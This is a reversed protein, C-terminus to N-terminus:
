DSGRITNKGCGVSLSKRVESLLSTSDIGALGDPLATKSLTRTTRQELLFDGDPSSVVYGNAGPVFRLFLLYEKDAQLLEYSLDEARIVQGDLSILGGPRTIQISADIDIRSASNNKLVDKVLLEYETFIFTEDDTMHASKSRVSGLVVADAGCSLDSLFEAKTPFPMDGVTVTQPIGITVGVERTNGKSKSLQVVGSLKRGERDPYLEKYEKSYAREKETVQGKHVVTPEDIYKKQGQTSPTVLFIGLAIVCIALFLGVFVKM